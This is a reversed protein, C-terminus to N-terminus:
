LESAMIRSCSAMWARAGVSPSGGSVSRMTAGSKNYESEVCKVFKPLAESQGM